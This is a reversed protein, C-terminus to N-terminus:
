FACQMEWIGTYEVEASIGAREQLDFSCLLVFDPCLPTLYKLFGARLSPKRLDM